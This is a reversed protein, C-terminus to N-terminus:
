DYNILSIVKPVCVIFLRQACNAKPDAMPCIPPLNVSCFDNVGIYLLHYM